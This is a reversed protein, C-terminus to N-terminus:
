NKMFLGNGGDADANEREVRRRLLREFSSRARPSLLVYPNGEYSDLSSVGTSDVDEFWCPNKLTPVFRRRPIPRLDVEPIIGRRLEDVASNSSSSSAANPSFNSSNVRHSLPPPAPLLPPNKATFGNLLSTLYILFCFLFAFFLFCHRRTMGVYVVGQCCQESPPIDNRQHLPTKSISMGLFPM